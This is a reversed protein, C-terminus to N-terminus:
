VRMREVVPFPIAYLLNHEDRLVVIRTTEVARRVVGKEGADEQAPPAATNLHAFSIIVEGAAQKMVSGLGINTGSRAQWTAAFGSVDTAFLEDLEARYM